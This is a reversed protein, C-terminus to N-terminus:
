RLAAAFRPDDLAEDIAESMTRLATQRLDDVSAFVGRALTVLSGDTQQARGQGSWAARGSRDALMVEFNATAERRAYQNADFRTIAM